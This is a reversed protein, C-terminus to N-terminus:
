GIAGGFLTKKVLQFWRIPYYVYVSKAADLKYKRRLETVSPFLSQIIYKLMKTLFGTLNEQRIMMLTVLDLKKPLENQKLGALRKQLYAPPKLESLVWGPVSVKILSIAYYLSVYVRTSIRYRKVNEVLQKWDVSKGEMKLVQDVDLVTRLTHFGHDASHVCLYFILDSAALDSRVAKGVAKTTARSWIESLNIYKNSYRTLHFHLEVVIPGKSTNKRLHYHHKSCTENIEKEVVEIYGQRLLVDKAKDISSEEVLLDIDGSNRLGSDNYLREALHVGKLVVCRIKHTTLDKLIEETEGLFCINCLLTKYYAQKLRCIVNEPVGENATKRVTDFVLETVKHNDADDLLKDWDKIGFSSISETQFLSILESRSM